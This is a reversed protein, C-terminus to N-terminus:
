KKSPRAAAIRFEAFSSYSDEVLLDKVNILCSEM